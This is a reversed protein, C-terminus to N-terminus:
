EDGGGDNSMAVDATGDAALEGCWDPGEEGASAPSCASLMWETRLEGRCDAGAEGGAGAVAGTASSDEIRSLIEARMEMVSARGLGCSLGTAVDDGRESAVSNPDAAAPGLSLLWLGWASTSASTSSRM